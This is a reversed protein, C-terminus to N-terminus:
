KRVFGISNKYNRNLVLKEPVPTLLCKLLCLSDDNVGDVVVAEETLVM